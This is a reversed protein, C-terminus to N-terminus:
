TNILKNFTKEIMKWEDDNISISEENDKLEKTKIVYLDKKIDQNDIDTYIIYKYEKDIVMLLKYDTPKNDEDLLTIIDKNM